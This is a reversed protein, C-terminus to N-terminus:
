RRAQTLKSVVHMCCLLKFIYLCLFTTYLFLENSVSTLLSHMALVIFFYQYISSCSMLYINQLSYPQFTDFVTKAISTPACHPTTDNIKSKVTFSYSRLISLSCRPREAISLKLSGDLVTSTCFESPLLWFSCVPYTSWKVTSVMYNGPFFVFSQHCKHSRWFPSSLVSWQSAFVHM